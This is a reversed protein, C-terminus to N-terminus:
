LAPGLEHLHDTACWRRANSRARPAHTHATGDAEMKRLTDGISRLGAAVEIARIASPTGIDHLAAIIREEDTPPPPAAEQVGVTPPRGGKLRARDLTLPPLDDIDHDRALVARILTRGGGGDKVEFVIGAQDEWASTGRGGATHDKGLHHVIALGGGDAVLPTVQDLLWDVSGSDNETGDYRRLAPRVSDLIVLDWRRDGAAELDRPHLGRLITWQHGTPYMRRRRVWTSWGETAVVLVSNGARRTHAALDGAALSKGSKRRGAILTYETPDGVPLPIGHWPRGDPIEPEDGPELLRPIGDDQEIHRADEVTAAKDIVKGQHAWAEPRLHTPLERIWGSPRDFRFPYRRLWQDGNQAIVEPRGDPGATVDVTLPHPPPEAPAPPTGNSATPTPPPRHGALESLWYTTSGNATVGPFRAAATESWFRVRGSPTVSVSRTRDGNSSQPDHWDDLPNGHRDQRTSIHQAGPIIDTINMRSSQDHHWRDAAIEDATPPRELRVQVPPALLRQWTDPLEPLDHVNPIEAPTGDTRLWQYRDGNPHVSPPAVAYRHGHRIIDIGPGLTGVTVQLTAPIRYYRIGSPAPRATTVWTSPLPGHEAKLHALTDAGPKGDYADVDIGVVWPPLRLAINADPQEAAWRDIQDLDPIAGHEGTYGEPPPWKEGRPIPLPTWGQGTYDAVAIAYGATSTPTVM